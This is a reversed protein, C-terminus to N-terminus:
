ETKWIPDVGTPCYLNKNWVEGAVTQMHALRGQETMLQEPGLLARGGRFNSVWIPDTGSTRHSIYLGLVADYLEKETNLHNLANYAATAGLGAIGKYNDVTDGTILQSYFFKLGTGKLNDIVQNTTYGVKVRQFKGQGANAGRAFHDQKTGDALYYLDGQQYIDNSHISIPKKDFLPWHEYKVVEKDVWVPTLSGIKDVFTIEGTDPNCHLGAVIKLDKDKSVIISDAFQRHTESGIVAGERELARMRRWSEISMLDDAEEGNSVIANHMVKLYARLEYFFPPKTSIREGKYKHSFALDNRFNSSSDTMYILASDARALTIWKNLESNLHDIKDKFYPQKLMAEIWEWDDPNPENGYIFGAMKYARIARGEETTYGVIYPLMDGDILATMQGETPWLKYTAPCPAVTAGFDFGSRM